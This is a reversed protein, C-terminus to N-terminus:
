IRDYKVGYSPSRYTQLYPRSTVEFYRYGIVRTVCVWTGSCLLKGFCRLFFDSVQVNPENKPVNSFIRFVMLLKTLVTKREKRADTQRKTRM